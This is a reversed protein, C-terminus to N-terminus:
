AKRQAKKNGRERERERERESNSLNYKGKSSTREGM